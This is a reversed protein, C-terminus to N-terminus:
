LQFSLRLHNKMFGENTVDGYIFKLKGTHFLHFLPTQGVDLNDIVTIDHGKEIMMETMTSGLYGAAGTVLIKAM